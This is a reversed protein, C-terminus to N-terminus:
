LPRLSSALRHMAAAANAVISSIKPGGYKHMHFQSNYDLFGFPAHLVRSVASMEDRKIGAPLPVM